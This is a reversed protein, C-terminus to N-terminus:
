VHQPPLIKEITGNALGEQYQNLSMPPKGTDIEKMTICGSVPCVLSCMNCGVCTDQNIRYLNVIGDDGAGAMGMRNGSKYTRDGHGNGALEAARVPEKMISQHCGDECAIYCLGCNICKDENI